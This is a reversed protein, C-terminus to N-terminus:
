LHREDLSRFGSANPKKVGHEYRECTPGNCRFGSLRAWFFASAYYGVNVTTGDGFEIWPVLTPCAFPSQDSYDIPSALFLNFPVGSAAQKMLAALDAACQLTACYEPNIDGSLSQVGTSNFYWKLGSQFTPSFNEPTLGETPTPLNQIM